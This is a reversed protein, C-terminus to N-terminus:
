ATSRRKSVFCAGVFYTWATGVVVWWPWALYVVGAQDQFYKVAVLGAVSSLMAVVNARDNGRTRTTVGLLFVGLLGGFILGSWGLADELM